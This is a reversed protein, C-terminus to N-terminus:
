ISIMHVDGYNVEIKFSDELPINNISSLISRIVGGHTIVVNQSHNDKKIDELFLSTRKSLDIYSEGNPCPVNVFDDMWSNLSKQNIHDWNKLEWDGFNLEKLRQDYIINEGFLSTALIKCRQLPSSYVQAQETKLSLKQKIRELEDPFSDALPIDSNGYCIGKEIKPTTHRILYVEM